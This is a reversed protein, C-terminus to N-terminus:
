RSPAAGSGGGEASGSARSPAAGPRVRKWKAELLRRGMAQGMRGTGIFGVKM